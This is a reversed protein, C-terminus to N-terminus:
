LRNLDLIDGPMVDGEPDDPDLDRETSDRFDDAAEDGVVEHFSRFVTGGCKECTMGPQPPEDEFFYDKGCQECVLTLVETRPERGRPDGAPNARPQEDATKAQAVGADSDSDYREDPTPVREEPMTWEERSMPEGERSLVDCVAYDQTRLGSDWTGLM